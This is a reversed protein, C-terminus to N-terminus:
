GCARRRVVAPRGLDHDAPRHRQMSLRAAVFVSALQTAGTVCVTLGIQLSDYGRVRGLYVPILFNSAYLGFGIVLNFLCAFVFTRNRFPSIRVIPGGSRFSREVFLLLGVFSAWAAVAIHPDSFWDHQQGEELVYELGGLFLAMAALHSYDIRKLMSLDPKDINRIVLLALGTVAIGPGINIYFIWRWGATETIWGGVTPGLTPALVSVMGLIAPIM